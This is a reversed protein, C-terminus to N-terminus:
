VTLADIRAIIEGIVATDQSGARAETWHGSDSRARGGPNKVMRSSPLWRASGPSRRQEHLQTVDQFICHLAAQGSLTIKRVTV